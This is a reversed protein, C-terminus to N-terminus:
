ARPRRGREGSNRLYSSEVSFLTTIEAIIGGYICERTDRPPPCSPGVSAKIIM